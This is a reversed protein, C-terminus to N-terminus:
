GASNQNFVCLVSVSVQGSLLGLTNNEQLLVRACSWLFFGFQMGSHRLIRVEIDASWDNAARPGSCKPATSRTVYTVENPAYRASTSRTGLSPTVNTRASYCLAGASDIMAVSDVSDTVILSSTSIANPARYEWEPNFTQFKSYNSEVNAVDPRPWALSKRGQFPRM